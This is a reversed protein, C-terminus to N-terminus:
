QVGNQLSVGFDARDTEVPYVVSAPLPMMHKVAGGVSLLRFLVSHLYIDMRGTMRLDMRVLSQVQLRLHSRLLYPAFVVIFRFVIKYFAVSLVVPFREVIPLFMMVLCYTECM